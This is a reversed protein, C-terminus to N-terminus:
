LSELLSSIILVFRQFSLSFVVLGLGVWFIGRAITRARPNEVCKGCNAKKLYLRWFSYGL